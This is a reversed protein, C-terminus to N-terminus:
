KVHCTLCLASGDNPKRLLKFASSHVDHCSACELKGDYLMDAAITGGLGSAAAAPDVLGGDTSALAGDYTFSVPHDEHLWGKGGVVDAHGQPWKVTGVTGGWSDLAVTGDHCSLCLKSNSGPQGVTANMSTSTYLQFVRVTVEHNWLPAGAAGNANHPTHCVVCIQNSTYWGNGGTTFDHKAGVIGGWANVAALATALLLTVAWLIQNKM